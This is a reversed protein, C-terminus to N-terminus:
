DIFILMVALSNYLIFGRVYKFYEININKASATLPIRFTLAAATRTACACM